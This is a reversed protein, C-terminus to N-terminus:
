HYSKSAFATSLASFVHHSRLEISTLLQYRSRRTLRSILRITEEIHAPLPPLPANTDAM